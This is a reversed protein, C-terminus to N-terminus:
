KDYYVFKDAEELVFNRFAEAVPSMAKGHRTVLHWNRQLPFGDVDLTTLHDNDLELEVTHLSVIGLGFGASVAHKIAENSNMELTTECVLGATAFHKEIAERTGSGKERVVFKEKQIEKKM